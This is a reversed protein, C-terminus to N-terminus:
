KFHYTPSRPDFDADTLGLNIKLDLYTYEEDLEPPAGPAKPWGYAEYRIPVMLQDDLYILAKYFLFNRRPVPHTVEIITCVRGNVKANKRYHVECEGFQKDHDAVEILRRTLNSFGLQTIPYRNGEMAMASTPHLSVMGFRAKLGKAEHALMNGGNAGEVYIVERGAVDDPKLFYLYVSFPQQRVKVFMYEPDGLKGNIRERKIMTCSYDRINAKITDMARYALQLAGVLPHEAAQPQAAPPQGGTPVSAQSGVPLPGGNVPGAPAQALLAAGGASAAAIAGALAMRRLLGTFRM